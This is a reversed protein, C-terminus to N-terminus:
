STPLPYGLAESMTRVTSVYISDKQRDAASLQDYPVFCPHEKAKVDKVPGYKWGNAKKEALWGEHSKEPSNGSFVGVVGKLASIRQWEPADKWAVQSGDGLAACYIRNMEHAAEACILEVKDLTLMTEDAM